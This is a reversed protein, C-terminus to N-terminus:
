EVIEIQGKSPSVLGLSDRAVRELDEFVTLRDLAILLERNRQALRTRETMLKSVDRGLSNQRIALSVFGLLCLVVFATLGSIIMFRSTSLQGLPQSPELELGGVDEDDEVDGDDAREAMTNARHAAIQQRWTPASARRATMAQKRRSRYKSKGGFM